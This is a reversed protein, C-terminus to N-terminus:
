MIESIILIVYAVIAVYAIIRIQKISMGFMKFGPNIGAQREISILMVSVLLIGALYNLAEM